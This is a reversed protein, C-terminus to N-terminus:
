ATRKQTAKLENLDVNGIGVPLILLDIPKLGLMTMQDAVAEAGADIPIAVHSEFDCRDTKYLAVSFARYEISSMRKGDMYESSFVLYFQENPRMEIVENMSNFFESQLRVILSLTRQELGVDGISIAHNLRQRNTEIDLALQNLKKM